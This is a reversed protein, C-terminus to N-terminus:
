NSMGSSMPLRWFSTMDAMTWKLSSSKWAVFRQSGSMGSVEGAFLHELLPEHYSSILSHETSSM